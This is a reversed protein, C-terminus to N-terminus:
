PLYIYYFRETKMQGRKQLRYLIDAKQAAPLSRPEIGAQEAIGALRPPLQPAGKWLLALPRRLRQAAYPTEAFLTKIQPDILRLNGAYFPDPALVTALPGHARLQAYLAPYDLNQVPQKAHGARGYLNIYLAPPVICAAIIGLIGLARAKSGSSDWHALWLVAYAPALFLLPQLWRDKIHTAGSCLVIFACFLLGCLLVAGIFRRAQVNAERASVAAANQEAGSHAPQRRRLKVILALILTLVLLPALFNLGARALDALGLARALIPAGINAQFKVAREAVSQPHQAMFILAPTMLAFAAAIAAVFYRSFVARRIVPMFGASLVLAAIFILGNYKGLVAVAFAAGLAAARAYNPRQVFWVFAAFSWASGAAGLVSHILARQSEWGIQPLLFIGLSACAALPKAVRLLRLGIYVAFFTSALIGFRLFQLLLFHLGFLKTLGYALWTYLPPQSGGYGWNWFSINSILEADDLGAGLSIFSVFCAEFAFYVILFLLLCGGEWSLKQWKKVM